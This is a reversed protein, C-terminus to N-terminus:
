AMWSLWMIWFNTSNVLRNQIAYINMIQGRDETRQGRDDTNQGRDETRQGWNETRQENDMTLQRNEETRHGREDTNLGWNERRQGRNRTCLWWTAIYIEKPIYNMKVYKLSSFVKYLCCKTESSMLFKELLYLHFLSRIGSLKFYNLSSTRWSVMNCSIRM